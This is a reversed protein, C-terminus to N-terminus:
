QLFFPNVFLVFFPLILADYNYKYIIYGKINAYCYSDLQM